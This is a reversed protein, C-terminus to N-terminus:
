RKMKLAKRLAKAIRQNQQATELELDYGEKMPLGRERFYELACALEVLHFKRSLRKIYAQYSFGAHSTCTALAAENRIEEITSLM